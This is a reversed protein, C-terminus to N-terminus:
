RWNLCALRPKRGQVSGPTSAILITTTDPSAAIKIEAAASACDPKGVDPVAVSGSVVGFIAFM